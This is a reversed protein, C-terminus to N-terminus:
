SDEYVWRNRISFDDPQTPVNYSTNMWDNSFQAYLFYRDQLPKDNLSFTMKKNIKAYIYKHVYQGSSVVISDRPPVGSITSPLGFSRYKQPLSVAKGLQRVSKIVKQGDDTQLEQDYVGAVKFKVKLYSQLNNLFLLEDTPDTPIMDRVIKFLYIKVPPLNPVIDNSLMTQGSSSNLPQFHFRPRMRVQVTLSKMLVKDGIRGDRLESHSITPTIEKLITHHTLNFHTKIDDYAADILFKDEIRTDLVDKVINKVTKTLKQGAKKKRQVRKGDRKTVTPNWKKKNPM